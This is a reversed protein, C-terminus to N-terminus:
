TLGEAIGEMYGLARTRYAPPLRRALEVFRGLGPDHALITLIEAPIEVPTMDTDGSNPLSGKPYAIRWLEAYTLGLGEALRALTRGTPEREPHNLLESLVSGSLKSERALRAYSYRPIAKKQERVFQHIFNVLETMDVPDQARKRRPM